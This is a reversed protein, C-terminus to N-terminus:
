LKSGQLFETVVIKLEQKKKFGFNRCLEEM